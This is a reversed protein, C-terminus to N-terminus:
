STPRPAKPFPRLTKKAAKVAKAVDTTSAVGYRALVEGTAPNLTAQYQKKEPPVFAGDIFLEYQDKITVAAPSQPAADYNWSSGSHSDSNDGSVAGEVAKAAPTRAKTESLHEELM